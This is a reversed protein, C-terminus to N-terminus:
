IVVGDKEIIVPGTPNIRSIYTKSKIDLENLVIEMAKGIKEAFELSSSLAFVSPGSGSISCGMAGSSLAAKKIDYFGPILQARLPEVIVDELSRGILDLDGTFLGTILGAINGFHVLAKDFPVEKKLISRAYETRVEVMPNIVTCFINDPSPIKIVDLPKYSRIVVFGGLLSPAVNDAHASGCAVREGEMAFPLLDKVSLPEGMLINAGYVGAVASAASAGLGSGLPMNKHIELEFGQNSKIHELFSMISVSATNKHAEVPLKGDDGTIKTIVVEPKDTLTLIVEDGPKELAFGLVDFGCAVNAVTAPAFIKISKM